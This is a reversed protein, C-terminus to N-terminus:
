QLASPLNPVEPMQLNPAEPMQLNPLEHMEKKIVRKPERKKRSPVRYGHIDFSDIKLKAYDNIAIVLEEIEELKLHSLCPLPNGYPFFLTGVQAVSKYGHNVINLRDITSLKRDATTLDLVDCVERLRIIGKSHPRLLEWGNMALSRVPNLLGQHYAPVDGNHKKPIVPEMQVRELLSTVFDLNDMPIPAPVNLSAPMM